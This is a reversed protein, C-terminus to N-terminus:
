AYVPGPRFSRPWCVRATGIVCSFGPIRLRRGVGPQFRGVPDCEVWWLLGALIVECCGSTARVETQPALSM